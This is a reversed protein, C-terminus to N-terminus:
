GTPIRKKITFRNWGDVYEYAVEDMMEKVLHIGLGGISRQEISLTTDPESRQLPDYPIARDSTVAVACGDVVGLELEIPGTLGNAEYGHKIVNTILEDLCVNLSAVVGMPLQERQGYEELVDTLRVLESLDARL